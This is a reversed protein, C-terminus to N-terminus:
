VASPLERAGLLNLPNDQQAAWVFPEGRLCPLRVSAPFTSFQIECSFKGLIDNEMEGDGGCVVACLLVWRGPLHLTMGLCPRGKRTQSGRCTVSVCHRVEQPTYPNRGSCYRTVLTSVPPATWVPIFDQM